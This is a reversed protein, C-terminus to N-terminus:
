PDHSPKSPNRCTDKFDPMTMNPCLPAVPSFYALTLKDPDCNAYCFLSLTHYSWTAKSSGFSYSFKCHTEFSNAAAELNYGRM